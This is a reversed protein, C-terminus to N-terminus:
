KTKFPKIPTEETHGITRLYAKFNEIADYFKKYSALALDFHHLALERNGDEAAQWSDCGHMHLEEHYKKVERFQSSGTIRTDTQGAIWKGLKCGAPNNLQTIQLHEFGAINNYIRWTLIHHDIQFIRVWDQTTLDSFGRAMDGRASDVYRSISHLHDGTAFCDRELIEYSEAMSEISRLFSETVTTQTNVADHINNIRSNILDMHESMSNIDQVSNQVHSNSETLHETTSDVLTKLDALSTKLEDVYNVVMDASQATNASLDKVQGAVISFGRGAEGARAAEISANLALLNSQNALKKVVDIINNIQEIKEQFIAVKDHIGQIQNVSDSVAAITENMNTVSIGSVEIAAKAETRIHDVEESISRISAEFEKSSATMSQISNTQAMVQEIMEKVCSNDGIHEMSENMRMVYNNNSKKLVTMMENFKETVEPDSYVSADVAAYKGDIFQQMADLLLQKDTTTDTKKNKKRLM